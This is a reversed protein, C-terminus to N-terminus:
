YLMQGMLTDTSASFAKLTVGANAWNVGTLSTWDLTTSPDGAAIYSVATVYEGAALRIQNIQTQGSIPVLTDVFNGDGLSPAELCMDGTSSTIIITPNANNATNTTYNATPVSQSVNYFSAATATWELVTSVTVAIAIVGTTPALLGWLQSTINGNAAEVGLSAMATGGATIGTTVAAGVDSQVAVLLYRNTNAGVTINFSISATNSIAGSNASTDFAVVAM